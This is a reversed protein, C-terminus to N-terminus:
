VFGESSIAMLPDSDSTQLVGDPPPPVGGLTVTTNESDGQERSSASLPFQLSVQSIIDTETNPPGPLNYFEKCVTPPFENDTAMCWSCEDSITDDKQYSDSCISMTVPLRGTHPPRSSDRLSLAPLSDIWLINLPSWSPTCITLEVEKQKEKKKKRFLWVALLVAVSAAGWELLM